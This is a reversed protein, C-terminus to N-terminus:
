TQPVIPSRVEAKCLNGEELRKIRERKMWIEMDKDKLVEQLITVEREHNANVMQEQITHILNIDKINKGTLGKILIYIIPITMVSLSAWFPNNYGLMVAWLGWATSLFTFIASVIEAITGKLNGQQITGDRKDMRNLTGTNAIILDMKDDITDLKADIGDIQKQKEVVVSELNAIREADSLGDIKKAITDVAM